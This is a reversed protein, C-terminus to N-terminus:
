YVLCGSSGASIVCFAVVVCCVNVKARGGCSSASSDPSFSPGIVSVYSVYPCSFWCFFLAIRIRCAREPSAWAASWFPQHSFSIPGVFPMSVFLYWTIQLLTMPPHLPDVPGEDVFGFVLCGYARLKGVIVICSMTWACFCRISWKPM